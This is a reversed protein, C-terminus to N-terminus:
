PHYLWKNWWLNLWVIHYSCSHISLHSISSSSSHYFLNSRLLFHTWYCTQYTQANSYSVSSFSQYSHIFMGTQHIDTKFENWYKIENQIFLPIHFEVYWTGIGLSMTHLILWHCVISQIWFSFIPDWFRNMSSLLLISSLSYQIWQCILLYIYSISWKHFSYSGSVDEIM